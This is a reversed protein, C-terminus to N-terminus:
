LFPTGHGLAVDWQDTALTWLLIDHLRLRTLPPGAAATLV